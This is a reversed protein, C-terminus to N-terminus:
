YDLDDDKDARATVLAPAFVMAFFISAVALAHHHM